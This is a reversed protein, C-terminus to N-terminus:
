YQVQFADKIWEIKQIHGAKEDPSIGIMDFRCYEKYYSYHRVLYHRATRILRSQKQPTIMELVDGYDERERKKVEIFVLFEKDRMILDIEGIKKGIENIVTFNKEVLKLGRNELFACADSEALTGIFVNSNSLSRSAM